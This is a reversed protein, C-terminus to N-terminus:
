LALILRMMMILFLMLDDFNTETSSILVDDKSAYEPDTKSSKDNGKSDM